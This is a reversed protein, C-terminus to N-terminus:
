VKLNPVVMVEGIKLFTTKISSVNMVRDPYLTCACPHDQYGKLLWTLTAALVTASEDGVGYGKLVAQAALTGTISSAFAQLLTSV